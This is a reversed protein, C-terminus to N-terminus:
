NKSYNIDYSHENQQKYAKQLIEFEILRYSQNRAILPHKKVWNTFNQRGQQILQYIETNHIIGETIQNRYMTDNRLSPINKLTSLAQLILKRSYYEEVSRQTERANQRLFFKRNEISRRM